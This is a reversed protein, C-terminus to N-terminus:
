EARETKLANYLEACTCNYYPQVYFIFLLGCTLCALLTWGIFSLDLMFAKMKNGNMMKRSLTIADMAGIEPNEALIYPVMRYSYGKVIGPIVFLLSWLIIFLDRFFLAAVNRMWPNFGTKLEGIDGYGKSNAIFYGQCGVELPNLVFVRILGMVIAVAMIIGFVVLVLAVISESDLGSFSNAIEEGAQSGKSGATGGAAGASAFSLILSVAVTPWYNAKMATKGRLKLDGNTWM